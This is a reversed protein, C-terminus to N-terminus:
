VAGDRGEDVRHPGVRFAGTMGEHRSYGFRRYLSMSDGAAFLGVFAKPGAQVAIWEELRRLMAAGIGCRQYPPMVALDQLYFYIAGDGVLRGVGIVQSDVVAVVGRLSGALSAAVADRDYAHEWGVADTVTLFETPTPMRDIM